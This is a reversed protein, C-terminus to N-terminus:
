PQDFDVVVRGSRPHTQCTLVYGDEVEGDTLAYNMNMHVEGEMVKAKCTACVAGKCAFPADMGSELAMDLVSDGHPDMEIEMEDGDIIVKVMAKGDMAVPTAPKEEQASEVPTTFLEIHIRERAVNKAELVGKVNMMMDYPGCIFHEKDEGEGGFREILLAAKEASIQGNYLPDEHNGKSLIHHVQLRASHTEVLDALEQKFVISETNSNGYFLVVRSNPETLLVTKLISHIPTIGSGAAFLVYVKAHEANMPSHFGGMPEMVSLTDGPKLERLLHTSVRGDPVQKVAIRLGEEQPSSCLSYSRRLEKGNVLVNLTLYQGQIYRFQEAKEAPVQLGISICRDTERKVDGVVLEHFGAMTSIIRNRTQSPRLFLGILM